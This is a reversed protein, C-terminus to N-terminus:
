QVFEADGLTEATDDLCPLELSETDGVTIEYVSGRFSYRVTLQPDQWSDRPSSSASSTSSTSTKTESRQTWEKMLNRIRQRGSSWWRLRKPVSNKNRFQLLKSETSLNYFGMWSSKPIRDPIILKSKNVWFQLQVTADMSIVEHLWSEAEGDGNGDSEDDNKQRFTQWYTAGLIILGGDGDRDIGYSGSQDQQRLQSERCRKKEAVPKMLALQKEAEAKTKIVVGVSSSDEGGGQSTQNRLREGVSSESADFRYRDHNQANEDDEDGLLDALMSQLLLCYIGYYFKQLYFSRPDSVSGLQLIPIPIRFTSQSYQIEWIWAWRGLSVDHEMGFALTPHTALSGIEHTVMATIKKFHGLVTSVEIKKPLTFKADLWEYVTKQNNKSSKNNQAEDHSKPFRCNYGLEVSNGQLMGISGKVSTKHVFHYKKSTLSGEWKANWQLMQGSSSASVGVSTTGINQLHRYSKLNFIIPADDPLPSRALYTLGYRCATQNSFTHTSGLSYQHSANDNNLNATGFLQTQPSPTYSTNVFASVPHKQAIKLFDQQQKKSEIEKAMNAIEAVGPYVLNTSCGVAMSWKSPQIPHQNQQQKKQHHNNRPPQVSSLTFGVDAKQGSRLQSIQYDILRREQFIRQRFYDREEKDVPPKSLINKQVYRLYDRGQYLVPKLPVAPPFNMSVGLQVYNDETLNQQYDHQEMFTDLEDRAKSVNKQGVLLHELKEYLNLMREEDDADDADRDCDEEYDTDKAEDDDDEEDGGVNSNRRQEERRTQQERQQQQVRRVLEVGDEGYYDYALRLVPDILVDHAKKFRLFTEQIEEMDTQPLHNNIVNSNSSSSSGDQFATTTSTSTATAPRRRIKDPHFTTSLSRYSRHIEEETANHGLNLISYLSPSSHEDENDDDDKLEDHEGYLYNRNDTM